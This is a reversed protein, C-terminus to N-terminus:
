IWGHLRYWVLGLAEHLVLENRRIAKWSPMLEEPLPGLKRLSSPAPAVTIGEKRFSSAARLMSPGDVVLVVKSIGHQKLIEAGFVANEHTNHSHEETWIMPGPVGARELLERMAGASPQLSGAESGGCALVPLAQRRKHLWAAFACRSFTNEDVLPYPREYRPPDVGAALVVIAEAAGPQPPQVDYWAELPRSLLWDVPPWSLLLMGLVGVLTLGIGRRQRLRVLGFLAMTVFLLILPQTYTM